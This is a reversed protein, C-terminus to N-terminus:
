QRTAGPGASLQPIKLVSTNWRARSALAAAGPESDDSSNAFKLLLGDIRAGISLNGIGRIRGLEKVGRSLEGRTRSAARANSSATASSSRSRAM